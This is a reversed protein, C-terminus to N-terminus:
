SVHKSRMPKNTGERLIQGIDKTELLQRTQNRTNRSELMSGINKLKILWLLM